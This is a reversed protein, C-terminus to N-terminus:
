NPLSTIPTDAVQVTYTGASFIPGGTAAFNTTATRLGVTLGTENILYLGRLTESFTKMIPLKHEHKLYILM